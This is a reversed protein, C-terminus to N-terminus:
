LEEEPLEEVNASVEAVGREKFLVEIEPRELHWVRGCFECCAEIRGEKALLEYVEIEPILAVTRKVREVSCKCHYRPSSAAFSIPDLGEMVMACIEDASRGERVLDTPTGLKAVNREVIAISEESAGPLMQVLFGGAATVAGSDNVFVGVGLASPTQESDALYVAVDEAIEGSTIPVMGTYPAKAYKSNRVVALVGGGVARGVDLKGAKSPPLHVAGDGVYGRVEGDGNSIATIGRIPGDGRFEIQLTEGDKKGSSILVACALTRGFAASAVPSTRHLRAAGAVLGTCLLVRASVEGNASITRM